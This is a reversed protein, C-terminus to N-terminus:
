LKTQRLVLSLPQQGPMEVSVSKLNLAAYRKRRERLICILNFDLELMLVAFGFSGHELVHNPAITCVARDPMFDLDRELSFGKWHHEHQSINVDDPVKRAAQRQPCQAEDFVIGRVHKNCNRQGLGSTIAHRHKCGGFECLRPAVAM